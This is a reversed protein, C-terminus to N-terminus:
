PWSSQGDLEFDVTMVTGKPGPGEEGYRTLARLRKFEQVRLRLFEGGGGGSRRVVFISYNKADSVTGAARRPALM